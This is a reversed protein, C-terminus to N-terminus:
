RMFANVRKAGKLLHDFVAMGWIMSEEDDCIILNDSDYSGDLRHLGL